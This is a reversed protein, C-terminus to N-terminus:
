HCVYVCVRCVCERCVSAACVSTVSAACVCAAYVSAACVRPVCERCGSVAGRGYGSHSGRTELLAGSQRLSRWKYGVFKTETSKEKVLFM